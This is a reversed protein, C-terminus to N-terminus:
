AGLTMKTETPQESTIPSLSQPRPSGPTPSSADITESPQIQLRSEMHAMRQRLDTLTREVSIDYQTTTDRLKMIETRLSELADSDVSQVGAVKSQKIRALTENHKIAMQVIVVLSGFAIGVIPILIWVVESFM